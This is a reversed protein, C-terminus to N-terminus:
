LERFPFVPIADRDVPGDDYGLLYCDIAFEEDSMNNIKNLAWNLQETTIM